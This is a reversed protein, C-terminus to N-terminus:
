LINFNIFLKLYKGSENSQTTKEDKREDYPSVIEETTRDTTPASSSLLADVGGNPFIFPQMAIEGAESQTRTYERYKGSPIDIPATAPSQGGSVSVNGFIDQITPRNDRGDGGRNSTITMQEDVEEIIQDTIRMSGTATSKLQQPPFLSASSVSGPLRAQNDMTPTNTATRTGEDRSLFRKLASAVTNVRSLTGTLSVMSPSSGTSLHRPRGNGATFHIGSAADDM